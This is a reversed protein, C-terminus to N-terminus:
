KLLSVKRKIKEEFLSIKEKWHSPLECSKKDSISYSVLTARSQAKIEGSDPNIIEQLMTLSKNGLIEIGTKVEINEQMLVPSLFEIQIGAMVLSYKSGVIKEGTVDKFYRIRAIDFYHQFVANNVHGLMDYDNFRQQIPTSHKLKM